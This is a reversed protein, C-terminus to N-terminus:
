SDNRAADTGSRKETLGNILIGPLIWGLAIAALMILFRYKSIVVTMLMANVLWTLSCWQISPMEHIVGTMYVAIGLIVSALSGIASFPVTKLLPLVFTILLMAMSCSTWVNLLISKPYTNVKEKALMRRVIVFGVVGNLLTLGIMAPLVWRSRGSLELLSVALVFFAATIGMFILLNGFRSSDKRTKEIMDRIISIEQEIQSHNM